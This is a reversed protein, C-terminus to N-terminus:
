KDKELLKNITKELEFGSLEPIPKDTIGTEYLHINVVKNEGEKKVIVSVELNFKKKYTKILSIKIAREIELARYTACAQKTRENLSSTLKVIIYVMSSTGGVVICISLWEM